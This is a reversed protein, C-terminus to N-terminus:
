EGGGELMARAGATIEDYLDQELVLKAVQRFCNDFSKSVERVQEQRAAKLKSLQSNLGRVGAALRVREAEMATIEDVPLFGLGAAARRRVDQLRLNQAQLKSEWRAREDLLEPRTMERWNAM